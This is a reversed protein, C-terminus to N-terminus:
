FYKSIMSLVTLWTGKLLGVGQLKSISFHMAGTKLVTQIDEGVTISPKM